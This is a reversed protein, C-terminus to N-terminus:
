IIYRVMKFEYTLKNRLMVMEVAKLILPCLM